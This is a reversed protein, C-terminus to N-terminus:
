QAIIIVSVVCLCVCANDNCHIYVYVCVELRVVNGLVTAYYAVDARIEKTCM